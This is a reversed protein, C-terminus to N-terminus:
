EGSELLSRDTLAVAFVHVLLQVALLSAGIVVILDPIWLPVRAVSESVAGRGWDKVFNKIFFACAFGVLGFGVLSVAGELVRGASRPLASTLLNVRIMTGTRFTWAMSLFTISLIAFGVFEDLVHTSLAFVSRLIIELLIHCVVYILMLAAAAISVKSLGDALKEILM